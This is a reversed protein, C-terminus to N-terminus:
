HGLVQRIQEEHEEAHHVVLDEIVAAVTMEGRRLHIGTKAREAPSLSRIDAAAARCVADLQRLLEDADGNAGLTVAELREPADLMRGFRPPEGTAAAMRRAHGMWYPIMEDMHGVIQLASWEEPGAARLREAVEPQHLLDRIASNVAELRRAEDEASTTSTTDTM